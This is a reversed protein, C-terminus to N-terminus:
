GITFEVSYNTSPTHEAKVLSVRYDGKGAVTVKVTTRYGSGDPAAEASWRAGAPGEVLVGLPVGDSSVAVTLTQGAQASVVYQKLGLGSPLLSSRQTSAAGQAQSVREPPETLRLAPLTVVATAAAASTPTALPVGTARATPTASAPAAVTPASPAAAPQITPTAPAGGAQVPLCAALGLVFILPLVQARM